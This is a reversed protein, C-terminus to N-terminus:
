MCAKCGAAIALSNSQQNNTGASINVGINGSAGQLSDMMIANNKVVDKYGNPVWKNGTYFGVLHIDGEETFTADPHKNGGNKDDYGGGRHDKDYIKGEGEYTGKAVFFGYTTQEKYKTTALNQVTNNQSDQGTAAAAIAIRGGSVAAALSNSQQNYNGATINVGINGSTNNLSDRVSANNQTGHNTVGANPGSQDTYTVALATGFVFDEDATSLAASNSQQNVDGAAMNLGINGAAGDAVNNGGGEDSGGGGGGNRAAEDGSSGNVSGGLRATNETGENNVTGQSIHQETVTVAAAGADKTAYPDPKYRDNRDHDDGAYASVAIGAAIAFALPKIVMSAKM